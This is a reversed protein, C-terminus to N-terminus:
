RLKYQDHRPLLKNWFISDGKGFASVNTFMMPVSLNYFFFQLAKVLIQLKRSYYKVEEVRRNSIDEGCDNLENEILQKKFCVTM